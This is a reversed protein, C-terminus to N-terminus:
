VSTFLMTITYFILLLTGLITVCLSIAQRVSSVPVKSSLFIDLTARIIYQGDFYFCPIINLIAIGSSFITIFQCLKTIADPLASPLFSYLSIFDSTKVSNYIEAPGGLYLVVPRQTRYIRILKTSNELSPRFCHLSPLCDSASLCTSSSLEVVKRAFLCSHQPLPLPESESGVYEFCLHHPSNNSCCEIVSESLHKAPVSEDHERIFSDPICFGRNTDHLAFVLCEQWSTSGHVPCDNLQTIKDGILLGGRGSISSDKVVNEVQVGTGFDYFPFLFWPLATAVVATVLALFINHWVGACYIRLQKVSSLTDIQDLHTLVVPIVFFITLSFGVLHVDERVAAMAHGLEHLLSSFFLALLYYGFDSAPLNWGPVLPEVVLLTQQFGKEDQLSSKMMSFITHIVLFVSIPMIFVSVWMGASFWATQIRPRVAGWKQIQRNFFSTFWTIRLPNIQIGTNTLFYIYPYHSCSKFFFDFFLLCFHIFFAGILFTYFSPYGESNDM